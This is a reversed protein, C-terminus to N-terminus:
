TLKLLIKILEKECLEIAELNGGGIHPTIVINDSQLSYEWLKSDRIDTFKEEFDMVDTLYFLHPKSEIEKIIAEEDVFVARSTNILTIPKNISSLIGETIIPKTTKTANAHISVIDCKEFLNEFINIM